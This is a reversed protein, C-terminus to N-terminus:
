SAVEYVITNIDIGRHLNVSVYHAGRYWYQNDNLTIAGTRFSGNASVRVPIPQPDRDLFVQITPKLRRYDIVKGTLSFTPSPVRNVICVDCGDDARLHVQGASSHATTADTLGTSASNYVVRAHTKPNILAVRRVTLGSFFASGPQAFTSQLSSTTYFHSDRYVVNAIPSRAQTSATWPSYVSSASATGSVHTLYVGRITPNFVDGASQPAVEGWTTDFDVLGRITRTISSNRVYINEITGGRYANTKLHLLYALGTGGAVDGQAFVDHVGGSM